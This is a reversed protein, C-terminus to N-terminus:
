ASAASPATPPSSARRHRVARRAPPDLRRHRHGAGVARQGRGRRRRQRGVLRGARAHPGVPQAGARLRLEREVLGDRVRGPQDQGAAARGGRALRRVVTATYPPRYGELIRSGAQSPVGETCFLDKVALPVGHSRGATAIRSPAEDAVWLYANLEDAAARDRYAEFLERRDLEGRAVAAAAQAATLAIIEASMGHPQARPLRRRGRRAGAALVVERPLCPRPEDPRLANPVDVVHSTPPVGDLDLEGIKEIHELINSLEGSIKTVEEDSLELRALRAVHLVQERDIMPRASDLRRAGAAAPAARAAHVRERPADTREDKTAWWGGVALVLAALLGLWAGYRLM